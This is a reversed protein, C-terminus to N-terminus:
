WCKRRKECHKSFAEKGSVDFPKMTYSHTLYADANWQNM